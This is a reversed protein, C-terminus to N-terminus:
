FSFRNYKCDYYVYTKNTTNYIVNMLWLPQSKILSCEITLARKKLNYEKCFHFGLPLNWDDYIDMFLLAYKFIQLNKVVDVNQKWKDFWDNKYEIIAMQERTTDKKVYEMMEDSMIYKLFDNRTWNSNKLIFVGSNIGVWDNGIFLSKKPSYDIWNTVIADFNIIVVDADLWLFSHIKSVYKDLLYEILYMKYWLRKYHISPDISHIKFNKIIEYSHHNDDSLECYIYNHILAYQMRNNRILLKFETSYEYLVTLIFTSKNQNTNNYINWCLSSPNQLWNIYSEKINTPLIFQSTNISFPLEWDRQILYPWKRHTVMIVFGGSMYLYWLLCYIFLGIFIIIICYTDKTCYSSQYHKTKTIPKYIASSKHNYYKNSSLHLYSRTPRYMQSITQM